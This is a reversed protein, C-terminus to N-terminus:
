LLLIYYVWYEYIAHPFKFQVKSPTHVHTFSLTSLSPFLLFLFIVQSHDFDKGKVNTTMCSAVSNCSYTGSSFPNLFPSVACATSSSISSSAKPISSSSLSTGWISALSWLGKFSSSEGGREGREILSFSSLIKLPAVEGSWVGSIGGGGAVTIGDGMTEGLVLVRGVELVEVGEDSDGVREGDDGDGGAGAVDDDVVEEVVVVVGVIIVVGEDGGWVEEPEDDGTGEEGEWGELCSLVLVKSLEDFPLM